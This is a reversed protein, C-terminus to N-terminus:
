PRVIVSDRMIFGQAGSHGMDTLPSNAVTLNRVTTAEINFAAAAGAVHELEERLLTKLEEYM